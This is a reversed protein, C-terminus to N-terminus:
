LRNTMLKNRDQMQLHYNYINNKSFPSKKLKWTTMIYHVILMATCLM